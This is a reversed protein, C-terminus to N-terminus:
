ALVVNSNRRPWKRSVGVSEPDRGHRFIGVGNHIEKRLQYIRIRRGQTWTQVHKAFVDKAPRLIPCKLSKFDLLADAPGIDNHTKAVCIDRLEILLSLLPMKRSSPIR